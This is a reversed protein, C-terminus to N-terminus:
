ARLFLGSDFIGACAFCAHGYRQFLMVLDKLKRYTPMDPTGGLVIPVIKQILLDTLKMKRVIVDM